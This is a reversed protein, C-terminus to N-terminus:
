VVRRKQDGLFLFSRALEFEFEFEFEFEVHNSVGYPSVSLSLVFGGLQQAPSAPSGTYVEHTKGRDDQHTRTQAASPHGRHGAQLARNGVDEARRSFDLRCVVALMSYGVCSNLRECTSCMNGLRILYTCIFLYISVHGMIFKLGRLIDRISRSFSSDEFKTCQHDKYFTLRLVVFEREIAPAKVHRSPKLSRRDYPNKRLYSTSSSFLWYPTEAEERKEKRKGEGSERGTRIPMIALMRLATIGVIGLMRISPSNACAAPKGAARRHKSISNIM